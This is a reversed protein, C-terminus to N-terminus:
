GRLKCIAEKMDAAGFISSGAVIIDAGAERIDAINELTVGGDIEIDFNYNGARKLESLCRLKDLSSGIFKQGGFGPEVSMVLVM